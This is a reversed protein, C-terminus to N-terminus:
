NAEVAQPLQDAQHANTKSLCDSPTAPGPVNGGLTFYFTAGQQPASKAWAKGVHRRIIRHVTALGIGTGEFEESSHLRQFAGFLKDAYAMDFGAGNDRVFYARLGDSDAAGFEIRPRATKRTFKWANGLLNTLVVRLLRADANAMLDPQIVVETPRNPSAHTLEGIVTQAMASLNIPRRIIETSTVHSLSLLADILHAMERTATIVRQLNNSSAEDLQGAAKDLVLQSFGNIARLPARLDHSVSYSFSALEENAAELEATRERVRRELEENTERLKTDLKELRKTRSLLKHNVELLRHKTEEMEANKRELESILYESYPQTEKLHQVASGEERTPRGSNGIVEGLAALITEVPAPKKLFLNAGFELGMERSSESAFTNSYLICPINKLRPTKRMTHCLQYGDMNPMLVDSIVADVPDRELTALAQVGDSAELVTMGEAELQARLLKLNTLNDDAILINM